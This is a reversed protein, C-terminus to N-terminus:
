YGAATMENALNGYARTVAAVYSNPLGTSDQIDFRSRGASGRRDEVPNGFIYAAVSKYLEVRKPEDAKLQDANGYEGACFYQQYSSTKAEGVCCSRLTM